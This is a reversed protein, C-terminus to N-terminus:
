TNLSTQEIQEQVVVNGCPMSEIKHKWNKDIM